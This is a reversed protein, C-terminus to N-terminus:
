FYLKGFGAGFFVLFLVAFSPTLIILFTGFITAFLFTLSGLVDFLLGPAILGM